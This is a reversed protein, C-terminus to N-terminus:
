FRWKKAEKEREIEEQKRRQEEVVAKRELYDLWWSEEAAQADKLAQADAEVKAVRAAEVERNAEVMEAEVLAAAAAREDADNLGVGVVVKSPSPPQWNPEIPRPARRISSNILRKEARLAAVRRERRIEEATKKRELSAEQWAERAAPRKLAVRLLLSGAAERTPLENVVPNGSPVFPMLAPPPRRHGQAEVTARPIGAWAASWRCAADATVAAASYAAPKPTLGAAVIHVPLQPANRHASPPRTPVNRLNVKTSPAVAYGPPSAILLNDGPLAPTGYGRLLHTLPPPASQPRARM